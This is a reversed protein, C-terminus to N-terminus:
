GTDVATATRRDIARDSREAGRRFGRARPPPMRQAAARPSCLPRAADAAVRDTWVVGLCRACHRTRAVGRCRIACHCASHRHPVGNRRSRLYHVLRTRGPATVPSRADKIGFAYRQVRYGWYRSARPALNPIEIADALVYYADFRLLPNGNFLVTSVTGLLIATYAFDTVVGPEVFFFILMAFAAIVLEALIDAAGVLIRQYKNAFAWASSADVYPIPMLLLFVIGMEHVEGGWRKVALRHALEHVTKMALYTLPILIYGHAAM